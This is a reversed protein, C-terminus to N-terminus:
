YTVQIGATFLRDTDKFTPEPLHDYRILYTIKLALRKSFSAVLASESNLRWDETTELNPITEVSQQFYAYKGVPSRLVFGAKAAIFDNQVDLTNKQQTWLVAAIVRLSDGRQTKGQWSLGVSEETRTKIGAFKNKDYGVGATLGVHDFMRYDGDVNLNFSRAIVSDRAEGYISRLQQLIKFRPSTNWKINEALSFTRSRSCRSACTKGTADVYGLDISGGWSRQAHLATPLMLASALILKKFIM